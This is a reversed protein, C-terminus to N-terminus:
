SEEWIPQDCDIASYSLGKAIRGTVSTEVSSRTSGGRHVTDTSLRVPAAQEILCRPMQVVPEWTGYAPRSLM